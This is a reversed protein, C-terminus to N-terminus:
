AAVLRKAARLGRIRRRIDAFRRLLSWETTTFGPPPDFLSDVGRWSADPLRSRALSVLVGFSGAVGRPLFLPLGGRDAADLEREVRHALGRLQGVYRQTLGVRGDLHVVLGTVRLARERLDVVETKKLNPAFGAERVAAMIRRRSHRGIPRLSSFTLDDLYRTYGLGLAALSRDLWHDCYLNFLLPSAPGGTYLGREECWPAGGKADEVLFCHRRLVERLALEHNVLEPEVATIAQALRELSVSGYANAVDTQFWYRPFGGSSRRHANVNALPSRKAVAGFAYPMPGAASSLFGIIIGHIRRAEDDPVHIPRRKFRGSQLNRDPITVREFVSRPRDALALFDAIKPKQSHKPGKM